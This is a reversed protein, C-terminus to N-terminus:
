QHSGLAWFCIFVRLIRAVSNMSVLHGRVRAFSHVQSCILVIESASRMPGHRLSNRGAHAESSIRFGLCQGM